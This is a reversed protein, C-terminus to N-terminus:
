LILRLGVRQSGDGLLNVPEWAYDVTLGGFAVSLGATLRSTDTGAERTGFGGRALIGVGHVVVGGEVGVVFRARREAPWQLEITSLLRYTEQPDVYNMTFGLRTLRPMTLPSASRWNGGVNQVAFGLAAIDFLAVTLGLDGSVGRDQLDAVRQDVLKVSGGAALLGYRYIMSGVGLFERASVTGGTPQGTIGGTAPDPVVEPESGFDFYKIGGGLSFQGIRFTLAGTTQYSDFPGAFFGAELSLHPAFALATPNTFVSAADGMLAAGAGNLGTGRVSNQTRLIVPGDAGAAQAASVRPAVALLAIVGWHAQATRSIAVAGRKRM